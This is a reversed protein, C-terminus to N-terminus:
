IGNTAQRTEAFRYRRKVLFVAAGVVFLGAAVFLHRSHSLAALAALFGNILHPILLPWPVPSTSFALSQFFAGIGFWTFVAPIANAKPLAGTFVQAVLDFCFGLSFTAVFTLILAIVSRTRPFAKAFFGVIAAVIVSGIGLLALFVLLSFM